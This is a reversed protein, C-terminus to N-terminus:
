AGQGPTVEFAGAASAIFWLVGSIEFTEIGGATMGLINQSPVGNTPAVPAAVLNNPGWGLYATVLCRVRISTSRMGVGSPQVQVAATGVLTTPGLPQFATDIGM